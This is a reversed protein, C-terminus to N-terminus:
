GLDENCNQCRMDPELGHSNYWWVGCKHQSVRCWFHTWGKCDQLLYSWWSYRFWRTITWM